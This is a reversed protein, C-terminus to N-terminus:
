KRLKKQEKIKAVVDKKIRANRDEESELLKTWENGDQYLFNYLNTDEVSEDIPHNPIYVQVLAYRGILNTDVDLQIRGYNYYHGFRGATIHRGVEVYARLRFGDQDRFYTKKIS